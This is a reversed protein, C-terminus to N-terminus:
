EDSINQHLAVITELQELADKVMPYKESMEYLEEGIALDRGGDLTVDHKPVVSVNNWSTGDFYSINNDFDICVDGEKM